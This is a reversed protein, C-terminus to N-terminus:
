RQALISSSVQTECPDLATVRLYGTPYRALVPTLVAELTQDTSTGQPRLGIGHSVLMSKMADGACASGRTRLVMADLQARVDGITAGTWSKVEWGNVAREYLFAEAGKKSEVLVLHMRFASLENTGRSVGRLIDERTGYYTQMTVGKAHCGPVPVPKPRPATTQASLTAFTALGIWILRKM